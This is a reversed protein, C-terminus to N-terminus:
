DRRQEDADANGHGPVGEVLDVQQEIRDIRRDRQRHDVDDTRREGENSGLAVPAFDVAGEAEVQRGVLYLRHHVIGVQQREAALHALDGDQEAVHPAERGDGLLEIGRPEGAEHIAQQRWHGVEDLLALARDVLVHAVGDHREPICRDVHRVMGDPRALGYQRHLRAQHIEVGFPLCLRLGFSPRVNRDIYTDAEVGPLGRDAVEARRLPQLIRTQAVLHVKGRPELAQALGIRNSDDDALVSPLLGRVEGGYLEIEHHHLALGLRLADEAEDTRRLHRLPGLILRQEVPLGGEKEKIAGAGEGLGQRHDLLAGLRRLCQAPSLPIVVDHPLTDIVQDVIRRRVPVSHIDGLLLLASSAMSAWTQRSTPRPVWARISAVRPPSASAACDNSCAVLMPKMVPKKTGRSPTAAASVSPGTPVASSAALRPSHPTGTRMATSEGHASATRAATCSVPTSTATSSTPTWSWGPMARTARAHFSAPTLWATEISRQPSEGSPRGRLIRPASTEGHVAGSSSRNVAPSQAFIPTPSPPLSIPMPLSGAPSIARVTGFPSRMAQM